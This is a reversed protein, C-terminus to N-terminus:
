VIGAERFTAQCDPCIGTSERGDILQGEQMRKTCWGCSTQVAVANKVIEQASPAVTTTEM